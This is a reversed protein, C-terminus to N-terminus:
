PIIVAKLPEGRGVADLADQAQELSLRHTVMEALPFRQHCM